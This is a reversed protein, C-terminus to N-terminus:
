RQWAAAAERASCVAERIDQIGAQVASLAIFRAGSREAILRALTTKGTGPPGWLILSHLVGGEIAAHLPKGDGLLHPQGVFEATTRPRMREALPRSSLSGEPLPLPPQADRRKRNRPASSM